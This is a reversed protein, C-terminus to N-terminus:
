VVFVIGGCCTLLVSVTASAFCIVSHMYISKNAFEYVGVYRVDDNCVVDFKTSLAMKTCIQTYTTADCTNALKTCKLKNNSTKTNFQVHKGIIVNKHKSNISNNWQHYILTQEDFILSNFISKVQTWNGTLTFFEVMFYIYPVRHM